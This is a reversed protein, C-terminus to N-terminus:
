VFFHTYFQLHNLCKNQTNLLVMENLHNKQTGVVYTKTSFYCVVKMCKNKPKPTIGRQYSVADFLFSCLIAYSGRCTIKLLKINQCSYVCVLM